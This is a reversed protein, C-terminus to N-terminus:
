INSNKITSEKEKIITNNEIGDNLNEKIKGEDEVISKNVSDKLRSVNLKDKMIPSLIEKKIERPLVPFSSKNSKPTKDHQINSPKDIFSRNLKLSHEPPNNNIELPSKSENNSRKSFNNNPILKNTSRVPTLPPTRITKEDFKSKENKLIVSKNLENTKGKIPTVKKNNNNTNTVKALNNSSKNVTKKNKQTNYDNKLLNESKAKILSQEHEIKM